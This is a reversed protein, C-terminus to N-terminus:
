NPGDRTSDPARRTTRGADRLAANDEEDLARAAERATVFLTRFGAFVGLLLGVWVLFHTGLHRDLWRGGFFGVVIATALEFGVVTARALQKV